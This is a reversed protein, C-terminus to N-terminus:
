NHDRADGPIHYLGGYIATIGAVWGEGTVLQYLLGGAMVAPIGAVFVAVLKQVTGRLAIQLAACGFLGNLATKFDLPKDSTSVKM